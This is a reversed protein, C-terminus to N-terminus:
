PNSTVPIACAPVHGGIVNMSLPAGQDDSLEIGSRDWTSRGGHTEPAAPPGLSIAGLDPNNLPEVIRVGWSASDLASWVENLEDSLVALPGVVDQPSEGPLPLLTKPRLGERGQPYYAVPIGRVASRTMRLLLGPSWIPPSVRRDTPEL